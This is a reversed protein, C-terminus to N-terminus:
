GGQRKYTGSTVIVSLGQEHRYGSSSIFTEISTTTGTRSGGPSGGTNHLVHGRGMTWSTAQGPVEWSDM